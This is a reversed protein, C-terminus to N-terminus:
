RKRMVLKLAEALQEPTIAGVEVMIEGLYRHALKTKDEVKQINLCQYVVELSAFGLAIVAEGLLPIPVVVDLEEVPVNMIELIRYYQSIDIIDRLFMIEGLLFHRKLEKEARVQKALCEVVHGAGAYGMKIATLGFLPKENKGEM